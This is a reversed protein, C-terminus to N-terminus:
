TDYKLEPNQAISTFLSRSGAYIEYQKRLVADEETTWAFRSPRPAPRDSDEVNKASTRKQHKSAKRAQKENARAEKAQQKALRAKQKESITAKFAESINNEDFEDGFDDESSSSVSDAASEEGDEGKSLLQDRKHLAKVYAAHAPAEYVSDLTCCFDHPRPHLFLAEVFMMRNKETAEGFKRIMAKILRILPEMSKDEYVSRDNIIKDFVELTQFNFLMYGLSVEDQAVDSQSGASASLTSHAGTSKATVPTRYEQELTFGNMRRFFSYAYYNVTSDNQSYHSLLKTYMRVTSNSVLRKFYDDTNFRMCAMVYQELDMENKGKRKYKKKAWEEANRNGEPRFRLQAAELTKLTEHVLEVLVFLHRKPYTGPKWASLLRPLPDLRESTTYFLRHLGAVAIEHHGDLGSELLVRLYCVMEKYLALPIVVDETRAM